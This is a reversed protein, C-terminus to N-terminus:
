DPFTDAIVGVTWAPRPVDGSVAAALDSLVFWVAEREHGVIQARPVTDDQGLVSRFEIQRTSM